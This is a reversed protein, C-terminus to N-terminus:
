KHICKVVESSYDLYLWKAQLAEAENVKAHEALTAKMSNLKGAFNKVLNQQKLVIKERLKHFFRIATNRYIGALDAATRTTPGAIFYKMLEVQKNKSLKCHKIYM